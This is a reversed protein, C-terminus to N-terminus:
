AAERRLLKDYILRVAEAAEPSNGFVSVGNRDADVISEAYPIFGLVEVGGSNQRIFDEDSPGRTKNGVVCYRKIR